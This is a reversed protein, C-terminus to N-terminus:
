RCNAPLYKQPITTQGPSASATSRCNWSIGASNTAPSLIFTDQGAAFPLNGAGTKATVTIVGGAGVGLSSIYQTDVAAPCGAMDNTSPYANNTQIYEAVSAKCADAAVVLESVKSRVIYDQYAPIAIAALIGIIAVVIMLEILTFGQQVKQMPAKM